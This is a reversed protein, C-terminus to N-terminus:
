DSLLSIAEDISECIDFVRDLRTVELVGRVLPTPSVLAIRGQSMRARMDLTILASLGTSDISNLGALDVALRASAGAAHELLAETFEEVGASTLEGEVQAIAVGIRQDIALKM